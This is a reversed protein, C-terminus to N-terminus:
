GTSRALYRRNGARWYELINGLVLLQMEMFLAIKIVNCRCVSKWWKLCCLIAYGRLSRQSSASVAKFLPIRVFLLAYNDGYSLTFTTNHCFQPVSAGKGVNPWLEVAPPAKGRSDCRLNPKNQAATPVVSIVFYGLSFHSFSIFCIYYIERKKKKGKTLAVEQWSPMTLSATVFNTLISHIQNKFLNLANQLKRFNKQLKESFHNGGRTVFLCDIAIVIVFSM